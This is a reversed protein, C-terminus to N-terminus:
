EREMGRQGRDEHTAQAQRDAEKIQSEIVSAQPPEGPQLEGQRQAAVESPLATGYMGSEPHAAVNSDPYLANRLEHLGQRAMAQMTGAGIKPSAGEKNDSM